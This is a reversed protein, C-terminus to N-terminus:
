KLVKPDFAGEISVYKAKKRRERMRKKFGDWEEPMLQYEQYLYGEDWAVVSVPRLQVVHSGSIIGIDEGHTARDLVASLNARAETITLTKM